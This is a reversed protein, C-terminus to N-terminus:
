AQLMQKRDDKSFLKDKTKPLYDHFKHANKDAFKDKLRVYNNHYKHSFKDNFRNYIHSKRYFLEMDSPEFISDVDANDAEYCPPIDDNEHPKHCNILGFYILWILLSYCYVNM